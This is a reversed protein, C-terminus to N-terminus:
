SDKDVFRNMDFFSNEYNQKAAKQLWSFAIEDNQEVYNGTAYFHGLIWQAKPYCGEASLKYCEMAKNLNKPTGHGFEYM